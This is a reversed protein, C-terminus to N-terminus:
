QKLWIAISLMQNYSKNYNSNNYKEISTRIKVSNLLENSFITTDKQVEKYLIRSWEPTDFEPPLRKRLYRRKYFLVPIFLKRFGSTYKPPYGRDVPISSLEDSFHEILWTQLKRNNRRQLPSSKFTKRYIHIHTTSFLYEMIDIDYFPSLNLNFFRELHMQNGYFQCFGLSIFDKLYFLWPYKNDKWKDVLERRSEINDSIKQITHKNRIIDDNIFELLGYKALLNKISYDSRFYIIDYYTSNIFDTKHHVPAFIEGGILGTINYHAKNAIKKVTYIYNAREFISIGDSFYIADLACKCYNHEFDEELFIPEYDLNIKKAVDLPVCTNEGGQKGFSYSFFKRKHHLLVAINTRGDFGGTLSVNIDTSVNARQLLSKEFLKIFENKNFKKLPLDDAFLTNISNYTDKSIIGNAINLLSGQNLMFVDELYSESGIPYDFIIKELVAAYNIKKTVEKFDNLNTSCYFLSNENKYYFYKLGLVDKLVILSSEQKDYIVIIFDGKLNDTFHFKDIRYQDLIENASVIDLNSSFALRYFVKGSTVVVFDDTEIFDDKESKFRLGQIFINQDSFSISEHLEDSFGYKNVWASVFASDFDNTIGIEFM